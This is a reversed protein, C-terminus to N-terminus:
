KVFTFSRFRLSELFTYTISRFLTLLLLLYIGMKAALSVVVPQNIFMYYSSLVTIILFLVLGFHSLWTLSIFFTHRAFAMKIIFAALFSLLTTLVAGYIGFEPVLFFNLFINLPVTLFSSYMVFQSKKVQYIMMNFVSSSFLFVYCLCSIMTIHYSEHFSKEALIFVIEKSFFALSFCLFIIFFIYNNLYSALSEKRYKLTNSSNAIEYFVPEFAKHFSNAFLFVVGAITIGLSYIGLDSLSTYRELFIRDSFDIIFVSLIVPLMPFTFKLSDKIIEKDFKFNIINMTIYIFFLSFLINTILGAMLAGYAGELLVVVLFIKLTLRLLFQSISIIVYKKAEGQLRYNTMPLRSYISFYSTLIAIFIFPFFDISIFIFGIYNRLLFSVFLGVTSIITISIFITGYYDRQSQSTKFDHYFRSISRDLALIFFISFLSNIVGMSSLIGYDSTSLYRTYVPILLFSLFKPLMGGVAYWSTERALKSM